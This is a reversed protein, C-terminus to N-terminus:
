QVKIQTCLLKRVEGHHPTVTELLHPEPDKGKSFITKSPDISKSKYYYIAGNSLGLYLIDDKFSYEMATMTVLEASNNTRIPKFLRNPDTGISKSKAEQPV